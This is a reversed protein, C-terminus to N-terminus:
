VSRQRKEDLSNCLPTSGSARLARLPAGRPPLPVTRRTSSTPTRAHNSWYRVTNAFRPTEGPATQPFEVSFLERGRYFTRARHLVVAEELCEPCGVRTLTDFAHGAFVMAKSGEQEWEPKAELVLSRVGHRALELATVLGVPGAGM